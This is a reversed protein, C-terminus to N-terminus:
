VIKVNPMIRKKDNKHLPIARTESLEKPPGLRLQTGFSTMGKSFKARIRGPTPPPAPTMTSFDLLPIGRSVDLNTLSTALRDDLIM